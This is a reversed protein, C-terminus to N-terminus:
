WIKWPAKNKNWLEELNNKDRLTDMPKWFGNDIYETVEKWSKLSIINDM